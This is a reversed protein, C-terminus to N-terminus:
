LQTPLKSLATWNGSTINRVWAGNVKFIGTSGGTGAGVVFRWNTFSPRAVNTIIAVPTLDPVANNSYGSLATSAVRTDRYLTLDWNSGNQIMSLYWRSFANGANTESANSYVGTGVQAGASVAVIQSNFLDIKVGYFGATDTTNGAQSATSDYVGFSIWDASGSVSLDAILMKGLFGSNVSQRFAAARCGGINNILLIQTGSQVTGCGGSQNVTWDANSGLNGEVVLPDETTTTTAMWSYPGRVVAQGVGYTGATWLTVGGTGGAPAAWTGDARLFNSTGGGSAPTMGKTTSTFAATLDFWTTGANTNQYVTANSADTRVRLSGRPETVVGSPDSTITKVTPGSSSTLQLYNAVELNDIRTVPAAISVDGRCELWLLAALALVAVIAWTLPKRVLPGTLKRM